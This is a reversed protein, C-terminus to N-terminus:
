TEYGSIMSSIISGFTEDAKCLYVSIKDRDGDATHIEKAASWMHLLKKPEFNTRDM